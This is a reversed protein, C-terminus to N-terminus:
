QLFYTSRLHASQLRSLQKLSLNGAKPRVSSRSFQYDFSKILHIYLTAIRKWTYRRSAIEHMRKGISTLEDWHLHNVLTRLQISNNFYLCTNETTARNYAVDFALVPLGLYMAEVLSPNTGGASHGHVYLSCNSRLIDLEELQYIPALLHITPISHYKQYLSQGYTSKDWNGVMVLTQRTAAFAKLILHINNEPEIRCVTFAYKKTLFPYKGIASETKSRRSVHDAGYEILISNTQYEKATYKKIAANDTIDADSYRVAMRESFKLFKRIFFNWKQRKWELGDINVIIKKSTFLKIFPLLVCGSVGLILLVDAYLLAHLISVLDYPISQWGNAQLPIYHLQIGEVGIAREEPKYLKKSAYVHIDYESKLEKCLHETLTEFGGYRAPIGATGIIALKRM